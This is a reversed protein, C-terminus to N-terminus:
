IFLHFNQSLFYQFLNEYVEIFNHLCCHINAAAESHILITVGIQLLFLRIQSRGWATQSTITVIMSLLKTGSSPCFYVEFLTVADFFVQIRPLVNKTQIVIRKSVFQCRLSSVKTLVLFRHNPIKILFM